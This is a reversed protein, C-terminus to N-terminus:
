IKMHNPGSELEVVEGTYIDVRKFKCVTDNSWGFNVFNFDSKGDMLVRQKTAILELHGDVNVHETVMVRQGALIISEDKIVIGHIQVQSGRYVIDATCTGDAQFSIVNGICDKM